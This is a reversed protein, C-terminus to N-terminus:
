LATHVPDKFLATQAEDKSPYFVLLGRTVQWRFLEFSQMRPMVSSKCKELELMGPYGNQFHVIKWSIRMVYGLFESGYTRSSNM